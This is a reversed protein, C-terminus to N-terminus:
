VVPQKSKFAWIGAYQARSGLEEEIRLLRNFKALREGQCPVSSKLQGVGTAVVLDAIFDHIERAHITQITTSMVKMRYILVLILESFEPQLRPILPSHGRTSSQM